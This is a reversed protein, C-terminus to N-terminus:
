CDYEKMNQKPASNIGLNILKNGFDQYELEEFEFSYTSNLTRFTKNEWDISEIVSTHFWNGPSSLWVAFGEGFAGTVGEYLKNKEIGPNDSIKRVKVYGVKTNQFKEYLEEPGLSKVFEKKPKLHLLISSVTRSDLCLPYDEVSKM